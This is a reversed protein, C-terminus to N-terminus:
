LVDDALFNQVTPSSVLSKLYIYIYVNCGKSKTSIECMCLLFFDLKHENSNDHKSFSKYKGGTQKKIDNSMNM